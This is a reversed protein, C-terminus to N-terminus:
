HVRCGVDDDFSPYLADAIAVIGLAAGLEGAEDPVHHIELAAPHARADFAWARDDLLVHARQLLSRRQRTDLRDGHAPQRRGVPEHAELDAVRAEVRSPDRAAAPPPPAPRVRRPTRPRRAAPSVSPWSSG